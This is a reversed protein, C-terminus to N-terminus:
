ARYDWEEVSVNNVFWKIAQEIKGLGRGVIPCCLTTLPATPRALHRPLM